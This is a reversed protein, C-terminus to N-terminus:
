RPSAHRPMDRRSDDALKTYAARDHVFQHRLQITPATMRSDAALKYLRRPWARIPPSSTYAALDHALRRRAQIPPAIMRSDTCRAQRQLIPCYGHAFLVAIRRTLTASARFQGCAIGFIAQQHVRSHEIARRAQKNSIQYRAMYASVARPLSCPATMIGACPQPKSM